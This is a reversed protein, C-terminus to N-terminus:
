RRNPYFVGALSSGHEPNPSFAASPRLRLRRPAEDEVDVHRPWPRCLIINHYLEKQNWWFKPDIRRLCPRQGRSSSLFTDTGPKSSLFLRHWDAKTRLSVVCADMWDDFSEEMNLSLNDFWYSQSRCTHIKINDLTATDIAVPVKEKENKRVGEIERRTTDWGLFVMGCDLMLRSVRDWYKWRGM